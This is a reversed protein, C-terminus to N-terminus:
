VLNINLMKLNKMLFYLIFIKGIMERLHVLFFDLNKLGNALGFNLFRLTLSKATLM